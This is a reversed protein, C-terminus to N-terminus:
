GSVRVETEASASTFFDVHPGTPCGFGVEKLNSKRQIDTLERLAVAVGARNAVLSQLGDSVAVLSGQVAGIPLNAAISAEVITACLRSHNVIAENLSGVASQTDAAVVHGLKESINYM